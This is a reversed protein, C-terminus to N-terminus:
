RTLCKIKLLPFQAELNLKKDGKAPVKWLVSFINKNSEKLELYGPRIEDAIAVNALCFLVFSMAVRQIM